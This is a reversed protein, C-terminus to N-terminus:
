ILQPPEWISFSTEPYQHVILRFEGSSIPIFKNLHFDFHGQYILNSCVKCFSFPPCCKNEDHESEHQETHNIHECDHVAHLPMILQLAM